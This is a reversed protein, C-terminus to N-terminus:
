APAPTSPRAAQRRWSAILRGAPHYEKSDYQDESEEEVVALPLFYFGSRTKREPGYAQGAEDVIISTWSVYTLIVQPAERDWLEEGSKGVM